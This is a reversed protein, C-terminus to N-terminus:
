CNQRSSSNTPERRSGDAKEFENAEQDIARTISATNWSVIANAYKELSDPVKADTEGHGFVGVIRKGQKNAEQIEYDVWSSKHTNKGIIVVVSQSWSIKMRLLRKLTAEPIEGNKIRDLNAAKARISSNRVDWGGKKLLSTIGDVSSDNEFRHSIFVHRRSSM